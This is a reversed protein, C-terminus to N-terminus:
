RRTSTPPPPPPPPPPADLVVPAPSGAYRFLTPACRRERAVGTRPAAMSESKSCGGSIPRPRTPPKIRKAPPESARRVQVSQLGGEGVLEEEQKASLDVGDAM